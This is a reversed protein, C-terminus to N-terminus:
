LDIRDPLPPYAAAVSPFERRLAQEGLKLLRLSLLILGAVTNFWGEYARVLRLALTQATDVQRQMAYFEMQWSLLYPQITHAMFLQFADRNITIVEYRINELQRLQETQMVVELEPSKSALEEASWRAALGQALGHGEKCKRIVPVMEELTARATELVHRAGSEVDSEDPIKLRARIAERIPFPERLYRSAVEELTMLVTGPIYAGGETANICVGKYNAIDYEYYKLFRLWTRTTRVPHGLNGPIELNDEPQYAVQRDGLAAGTAHSRGDDAFSLDQGVLIIPNCGLFEAIKFAMNAASPGTNLIGKEIGLWKFHDFARYTVITPGTYAAYARPDLVPCAALYVQEAHLGRFLQAVQPVRELSTLIHPRVGHSLLPALSADPALILARDQLDRLKDINKNLSPGTSAIIAPRGAFAGELDQIGPNRLITPVNLLMNQLGILSDHPANGFNETAEVAAERAIKMAKLYYERNFAMSGRTHAVALTKLLVVAPGSKFLDYLRAYLTPYDLGVLIDIAPNDLVGELRTTELALRFLAPDAEIAILRWTHSKPAVFTLFHLVEYGLGMGLLIVLRAGRLDASALDQHVSKSPNDADYYAASTGNGHGIKIVNPIGSSTEIIRYQCGRREMEAIAVLDPRHKRILSLNDRRISEKSSVM